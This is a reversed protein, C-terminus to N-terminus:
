LQVGAYVTVTADISTVYNGQTFVPGPVEAYFQGVVALTVVARLYRALPGSAPAVAVSPALALVSVADPTQVASPSAASAIAYWNEEDLSGELTVALTGVTGPYTASLPFYIDPIVYLPLDSSFDPAFSTDTASAVVTAGSVVTGLDVSSGTYTSPTAATATLAEASVLELPLPNGGGLGSIDVSLTGTLDSM